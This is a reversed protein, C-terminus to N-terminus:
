PLLAEAASLHHQLLPLEKRAWVKLDKDQGESSETVFRTISERHDDVMLNVFKKDFEKGNLSELESLRAACSKCEGSVEIGKESALLKLKDNTMAHDMYMIWGFHKVSDSSAKESALKGLAIKVLVAEVSELLFQKDTSSDNTRTTSSVSTFMVRNDPTSRCIAIERYLVDDPEQWSSKLVAALQLAAISFCTIALFKM